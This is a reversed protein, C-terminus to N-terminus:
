CLVCPLNPEKLELRQIGGSRTEPLGQKVAVQTCATRGGHKEMMAVFAVMLEDLVHTLAQM